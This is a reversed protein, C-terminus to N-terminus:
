WHDDHPGEVETANGDDDLLVWLGRYLVPIVAPTFAHRVLWGNQYSTTPHATIFGHCGTTGDGCLHMGNAPSWNGGQSRNKRHHVSQGPWNGCLECTAQSRESVIRRTARESM